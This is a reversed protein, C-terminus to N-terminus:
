IFCIHTIKFWKLNHIATALRLRLLNSFNFLYSNIILIITLIFLVKTVYPGYPSRTGPIVPGGLENVARPGSVSVAM